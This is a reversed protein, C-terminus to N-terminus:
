PRYLSSLHQKNPGPWLDYQNSYPYTKAANEIEPILKDAKDGRIDLILQPKQGFWSRDPMDQAIM